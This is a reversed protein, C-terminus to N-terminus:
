YILFINKAFVSKKELVFFYKTNKKSFRLYKYKRLVSFIKRFVSGYFTKSLLLLATASPVAAAFSFCHVNCRSACLPVCCCSLSDVINYTNTLFFKGLLHLLLHFTTFRVALPVILFAAALSATWLIIHLHKDSLIKRTCFFM